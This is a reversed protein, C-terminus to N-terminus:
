RKPSAESGLRIIDQRSDIQQQRNPCGVDDMRSWAQEDRLREESRERSRTGDGAASQANLGKGAGRGVRQLRLDPRGQDGHQQDLVQLQLRRETPRQRVQDREQSLLQEDVAIQPKPDIM